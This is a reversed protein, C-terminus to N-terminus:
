KGTIYSYSGLDQGVYRNWGAGISVKQTQLILMNAEGSLRFFSDTEESACRVQLAHTCMVNLM